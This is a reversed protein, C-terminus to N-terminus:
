SIPTVHTHMCYTISNYNFKTAGRIIPVQLLNRIVCRNKVYNQIRHRQQFPEDELFRQMLVQFLQFDGAVLNYRRPRPSDYKKLEKIKKHQWCLIEWSLCIQGVYVIELDRHLENVLKLMPDITNKQAKRPWLNQPIVLPKVQQVTSKQM